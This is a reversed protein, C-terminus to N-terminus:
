GEKELNFMDKFLDWYLGEEETGAIENFHI